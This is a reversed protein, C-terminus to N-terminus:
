PKCTIVPVQLTAAYRAIGHHYAAENLWNTIDGTKNKGSLETTILRGEGNTQMYAANGNSFELLILATNLLSFVRSLSITANKYGVMITSANYLDGLAAVRSTCPFKPVIDNTNEFRLSGPFKKNFDNAFSANGAAPAGFTIVDILNRTQSKNKFYQWCYSAYVTALSGGLSHGTILVPTHTTTNTELFSLLTKGTTKDVMSNMNQWGEWSGEAIKAKSSDNTYKWSQLSAVNLDQYIWNQLATWSFEILSGRIAVAYTKKYSAVFAHNGGLEESEWVLKWGPLYQDLAKQKEMCYSVQSLLCATKEDYSPADGAGKKTGPQDCAPLLYTFLLLFLFSRM